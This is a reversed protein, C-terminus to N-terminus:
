RRVRGSAQGAMLAEVEDLTVFNFDGKISHKLCSAAVAFRIADAPAAHRDSNLAHILGGAFSDGGGVRDVINRIEYPQYRGEPDLPAWHARDTERDFLLGGWNNHSASISERLTIAVQRVNAFRGTIARAVQEYAAANIRGSEVATGAAQIGLVDAADEENAIVVDVHPLIESMCEAALERASTGPRWHWLKKRFNLDCSVRAGGAQARRALELTAAFANRSLAPTIGTLHVWNVGRLAAEFDYESPEALAIASGERDYIVNSARQNAGTELFYVGLRGQRRLLVPGTDIGLGKLTALLSQAIAHGPLATLYRVPQGFLALSAAVNAEGGAFTVDVRGPLAQRFRLYGEPAIRMMIEGFTLIM